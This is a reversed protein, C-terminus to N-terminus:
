APTKAKLLNVILEIGLNIASAQLSKGQGALDKTIQNFAAQRKDAGDANLSQAANIADVFIVRVDDTLITKIQAEVSDLASQGFISLLASHIKDGLSKFFHGISSLSM